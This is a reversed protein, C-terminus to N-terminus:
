DRQVQRTRRRWLYAIWAFDYLMLAAAIPGRIGPARTTPLVPVFVTMVAALAGLALAAIALPIAAERERWLRLGAAMGIATVILRFLLMAAAVAGRDITRTLIASAYWAFGLPEVVFLLLALLSLM